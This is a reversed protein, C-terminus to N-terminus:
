TPLGMHVGDKQDLEGEAPQALFPQDPTGEQMPIQSIVTAVPISEKREKESNLAQM